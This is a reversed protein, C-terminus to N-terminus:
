FGSNKTFEFPKFSISSVKESLSGEEDEISTVNEIDIPIDLTYDSFLLENSLSYIHGEVFNQTFDFEKNIQYNDILNLDADSFVENEPISNLNEDLLTYTIKTEM